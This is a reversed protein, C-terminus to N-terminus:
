QGKGADLRRIEALTFDTVEGKGNTTRDVTRDHMLIIEGDKTPRVDLEVYNAGIDAAADFAAITNEPAINKAGRHAVIWISAPADACWLIAAPALLAWLLLRRLLAGANSSLM